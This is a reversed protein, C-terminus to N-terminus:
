GFVQVARKAVGAVITGVGLGLDLAPIGAGLVSATHTALKANTM